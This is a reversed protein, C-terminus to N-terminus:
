EEEQSSDGEKNTSEMIQDRIACHQKLTNAVDVLARYHNYLNERASSEDPKTNVFQQFTGEVLANLVNQFAPTSLLAEADDGQKILREQEDTRYM